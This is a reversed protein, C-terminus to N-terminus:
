SAEIEHRRTRDLRCDLLRQCRIGNRLNRRYADDATRGKGGRVVGPDVMCVGIVELWSYSSGVLDVVLGHKTSAKRDVHHREDEVSLDAEVCNLLGPEALRCVQDSRVVISQAEDCGQRIGIWLSDERRRARALTQ